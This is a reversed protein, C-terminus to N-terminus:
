SIKLAKIYLFCIFSFHHHLYKLMVVSLLVSIIVPHYLFDGSTRFRNPILTSLFSDEM